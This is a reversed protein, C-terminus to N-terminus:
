RIKRKGLATSVIAGLIKTIEDSEQFLAEIEKHVILKSEKLLRIWYQTERAERLAINTKYIFDAKSSAALAEQANAGISTASRILQNAIANGARTHPIKEISRIIELGFQFTRERIDMPKDAM